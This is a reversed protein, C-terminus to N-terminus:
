MRTLPRPLPAHPAVPQPNCTSLPFSFAPMCPLTPVLPLPPPSSADGQCTNTLHAHLMCTGGWVASVFTRLPKMLDIVQAHYTMVHTARDRAEKLVAVDNLCQRMAPVFVNYVASEVHDLRAATQTLLLRLQDLEAQTSKTTAAHSTERENVTSQLTDVRMGLVMLSNKMGELIRVRTELETYSRNSERELGTMRTDQQQQCEAFSKRDHVSREQAQQVVALQAYLDDESMMNAMSLLEEANCQDLVPTIPARRRATISLSNHM